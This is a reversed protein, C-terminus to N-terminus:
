SSNSKSFSNSSSSLLFHLYNKVFVVGSINGDPGNLSYGKETITFSVMQLSENVFIQKLRNFSAEDATDATLSEPVAAVVRKDICGDGKLTVLLSLNDFPKYAKDIIEYDFGEVAIVGRDCIGNELLTDLVAAPFARFINGTGFHVWTPNATTNKIVTDRNYSPIKYGKCLFDRQAELDYIESLKM